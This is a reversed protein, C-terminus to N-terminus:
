EVGGDKEHAADFRLAIQKGVFWVESPGGTWVAHLPDIIPVHTNTIAVTSWKTGNWHRARGYEGVAWLDNAATGHIAMIQPDNPKGDRAETFTFTQGNDASTGQWVTPWTSATTGYIWVSSASVAIAGALVGPVSLLPDDDPNTPLPLEAFDAGGHKRLVVLENYEPLDIIPCSCAAWVGTEANGWVGSCSLMERGFPTESWDAGADTKRELHLLRASTLGSDPDDSAGAVWVDSASLGWLSAVRVPEGPMTVPSFTLTASSAGTGHLIGEHGGIWLDTPGSGWVAVLPGLDSVHVKWTQGDWRLVNGEATVAWVVGSGDGWVGELTHEGAPLETRCFGHDSCLKTGAETSADRTSADPDGDAVSGDNTDKPPTFPAEDSDACAATTSAVTAALLLVLVSASRLSLKM